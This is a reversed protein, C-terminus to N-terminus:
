HFQLHQGLRVNPLLYCLIVKIIIRGLNCICKMEKYAEANANFTPIVTECLFKQLWLVQEEWTMCSKFETPILGWEACSQLCKNIVEARTM